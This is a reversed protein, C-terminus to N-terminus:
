LDIILKYDKAWTGSVVTTPCEVARVWLGLATFSIDIRNHIHRHLIFLTNNVLVCFLDCVLWKYIGDRVKTHFVYGIWYWMM